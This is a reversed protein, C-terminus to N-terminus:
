KKKGTATTPRDVENVIAMIRHLNPTWDTVLIQNTPVYPVLEGDRSTLIRLQRNIGEAKTHKLNIVLTLMREPRLPPLETVVPIFDRQIMRAQDVYMVDDRDSIALGNAALGTSLQAFAESLGVPGSNIITIKGHVGPSVIFKQGSHKAYDELVKVVDQNRYDFKIKGDGARANLTLLLAIAVPAVLALTFKTFQM